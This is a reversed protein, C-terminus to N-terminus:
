SHAEDKKGFHEFNLASKLLRGFLESFSKQKQPLQM